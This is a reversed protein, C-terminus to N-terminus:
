ESDPDSEFNAAAEKLKRKFDNEECLKLSSIQTCLSIEHSKGASVPILENENDGFKAFEDLDVM